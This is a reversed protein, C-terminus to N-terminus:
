KRGQFGLSKARPEEKRDMEEKTKEGGLDKIDM